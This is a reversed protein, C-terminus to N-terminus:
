IDCIINHIKIYMKATLKKKTKHLSIKTNVQICVRMSEGVVGEGGEVALKAVSLRSKVASSSLLVVM